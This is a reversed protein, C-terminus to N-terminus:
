ITIGLSRLLSFIGPNLLLGSVETRPLIALWLAIFGFLFPRRRLDVGLASFANRVSPDGGAYLAFLVGFQCVVLSGLWRTWDLALFVPLACVLPGLCLLLRPTRSSATDCRLTKRWLMAPLLWVPSLVTLFVLLANAIPRAGQKVFLALHDGLSAFYAYFFGAENSAADAGARGAVYATVAELGGIPKGFCQLGVFLGVAALASCILPARAQWHTRFGLVLFISPFFLFLFSPHILIGAAVLVPVLGLMRNRAILWVSGLLVPAHFMDLKGFMESNCYQTFSCPMVLFIVSIYLVTVRDHDSARRVLWGCFVATWFALAIWCEAIILNMEQPPLRDRFVSVVTGVLGRAVFGLEYTIYWFGGLWWGDTRVVGMSPVQCLFYVLLLAFLGLEYKGRALGGRLFQFVREVTM